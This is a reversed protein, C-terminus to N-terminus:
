SSLNHDNMARPSNNPASELDVIDVQDVDKPVNQKTFLNLERAIDIVSGEINEDNENNHLIPYQKKLVEHYAAHSMGKPTSVDYVVLDINKEKLLEKLRECKPCEPKTFIIYKTM